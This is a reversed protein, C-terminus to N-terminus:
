QSDPKSLDMSRVVEDYPHFIDLPVEFVVPGAELEVVGYPGGSRSIRGFDIRRTEPRGDVLIDVTLQHGVQPVGYRELLPADGGLMEWYGARLQGFRHIAEELAFTNV